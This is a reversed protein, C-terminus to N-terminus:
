NKRRSVMYAILAVLGITLATETIGWERKCTVKEDASEIDDKNQTTSQMVQSQMTQLRKGEPDQILWWIAIGFAFLGIFLAVGGIIWEWLGPMKLTGGSCHIAYISLAVAFLFLSISILLQFIRWRSQPLFTVRYVWSRRQAM